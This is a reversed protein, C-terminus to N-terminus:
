GKYYGGGKKTTFRQMDEQNVQSITKSFEIKEWDKLSDVLTKNSKESEWDKNSFEVDGAKLKVGKGKKVLIKM